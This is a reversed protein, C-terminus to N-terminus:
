RALLNRPGGPPHLGPAPGLIESLLVASRLSGPSRLLQRLSTTRAGHAEVYLQGVVSDALEFPIATVESARTHFTKVEPTQLDAFRMREIVSPADPPIYPAPYESGHVPPVRASSERVTSRQRPSFTPAVIPPVPKERRRAPLPPAQASSPRLSTSAPRMPEAGDAPLGLAERFKRHREEESSEMAGRARSTERPASRSGPPQAPAAARSNLYKILAVVLGVIVTFAFSGSALPPTM